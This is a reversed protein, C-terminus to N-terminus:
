SVLQLPKAAYRGLQVNNIITNSKTAVQLCLKKVLEVAGKKPSSNTALSTSAHKYRKCKKLLSPKLSISKSAFGDELSSTKFGNIQYNAKDRWTLRKM